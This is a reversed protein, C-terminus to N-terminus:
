AIQIRLKAWEGGTKNFFDIINNSIMASIAYVLNHKRFFCIDGAISITEGLTFLLTLSKRMDPFFYVNFSTQSSMLLCRYTQFYKYKNSTALTDLHNDQPTEHVKKVKGCGAISFSPRVCMCLIWNWKSITMYSKQFNEGADNACIKWDFVCIFHFFFSIISSVLWPYFYVLYTNRLM